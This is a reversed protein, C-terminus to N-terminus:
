SIHKSFFLISSEISPGFLRKTREKIKIRSATLAQAL